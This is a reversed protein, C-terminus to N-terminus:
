ATSVDNCDGVSAHIVERAIASEEQSLTKVVLVIHGSSIADQVLDSFRGQDGAGAAAGILGGLTAGWGMMMLPALLPSAIFLSVGTSVLAIEGLAGVGSGAAIGIASGVLVDNRVEKSTAQSNSTLVPSDKQFLYIRERPVGRDVLLSIASEADERNSFFGSVHHRYNDM